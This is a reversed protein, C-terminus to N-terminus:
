FQNGVIIQWPGMPGGKMAPGISSLGGAIRSNTHFLKSAVSTKQPEKLKARLIIKVFPGM